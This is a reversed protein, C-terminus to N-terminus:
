NPYLDLSSKFFYFLDLFSGNELCLKIRFGDGDKELIINGPSDELLIPEKTIPNTIGEKELLKILEAGNSFNNEPYVFVDILNTSFNSPWYRHLSSVETTKGISAYTLVFGIAWLIPLILLLKSLSLRNKRKKTIRYFITLLPMGFIIVLTANFISKDLRGKASYM